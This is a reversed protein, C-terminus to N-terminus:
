GNTSYGGNTGTTTGGGSYGQNNQQQQQQQQQQAMAYARPDGARGFSSLGDNWNYSSKSVISQFTGNDRPVATLPSRKKRAVSGIRMLTRGHGGSEIDLAALSRVQPPAPAVTVPEQLPVAGVESPITSNEASIEGSLDDTQNASGSTGNLNLNQLLTGNESVQSVLEASSSNYNSSGNWNPDVISEVSASAEPENFIERAVTGTTSTPPSKPETSPADLGPNPRGPAAKLDLLKDVLLTKLLGNGPGMSASSPAPVALRQAAAGASGGPTGCAARVLQTMLFYDDSDPFLEAQAHSVGLLLISTQLWLFRFKRTM